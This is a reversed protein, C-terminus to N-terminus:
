EGGRGQGHFMPGRIFNVTSGGGLHEITNFFEIVEDDYQHNFDVMVHVMDNLYKYFIRERPIKNSQILENLKVCVSDAATIVLPFIKWDKDSVEYEEDSIWDNEDGFVSIKSSLEEDEGFDTDVEAIPVILEAQPLDSCGFNDDCHQAPEDLVADILQADSQQSTGGQEVSFTCHYFM